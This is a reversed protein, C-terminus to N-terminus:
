SRVTPCSAHALVTSSVLLCTPTPRLNPAPSSRESLMKRAIASSIALKSRSSSERSSRSSPKLRRGDNVIRVRACRCDLHAWVVVDLMEEHRAVHRPAPRGDDLETRVVLSRLVAVLLSLLLRTTTLVEVHHQEAGVRQLRDLERVGAVELRLREVLHQGRLVPGPGDAAHPQGAPQAPQQTPRPM